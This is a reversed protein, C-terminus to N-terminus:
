DVSFTKTNSGTQNDTSKTQPKDNIIKDIEDPEPTYEYEMSRLIGGSEVSGQIAADPNNMLKECDDKRDGHLYKCRNAKTSESTSVSLNGKLAESYAAGAEKKCADKDIVSSSECYLLDNQYQTKLADNGQAFTSGSFAIGAMFFLICLNTKMFSIGQLNPKFM